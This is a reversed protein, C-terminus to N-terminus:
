FLLLLFGLDVQTLGGSEPGLDHSLSLDMFFLSFSIVNLLLAIFFYGFMIKFFFLKMSKLDVQTLRGFELDLDHSLSLNMFFLSFFIVNLLLAIFFIWVYDQFFLKISAHNLFFLKM